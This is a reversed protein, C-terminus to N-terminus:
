IMTHLVQRNDTLSLDCMGHNLSPENRSCIGPEQLYPYCRVDVLVEMTQQWSDAMGHVTGLPCGCKLTLM